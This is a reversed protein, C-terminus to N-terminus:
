DPSNKRILLKSLSPMLSKMSNTSAVVDNPKRRQLRSRKRRTTKPNRDIMDLLDEDSMGKLRDDLENGM